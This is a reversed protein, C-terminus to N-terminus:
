SRAASPGQGIRTGRGMWVRYTGDEGLVDVHRFRTRLLNEVPLRKQAVFVLSGKRSLLAPAGQVFTDIMGPEEAKGRHFPPNSFIADYPESKGSPLGDRLLVRGEPVNEKAALLAVSDVDLLDVKVERGKRLALFGVPGSGCGYDLVRAGTPLGPLVNLLLRTGPDLRGHAFVGPYSSWTPPLGPHDLSLEAKWDELDARLDGPDGEWRGKLVRCRGGVAATEVGAFLQSLPVAASQIGEDNAGFVTITGGPRLVSAGAHLAMFLEEKVRPLRLAVFDFPGGSPWPTGPCEGTERRNWSAVELGQASM